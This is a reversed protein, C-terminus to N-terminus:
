LKLVSSGYTAATSAAPALAAAASAAAAPANCAILSAVTPACDYHEHHSRLPLSTAASLWAFLLSLLLM